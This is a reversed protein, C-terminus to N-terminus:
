LARDGGLLLLICAAAGALAVIDVASIRFRDLTRADGRYGRSTMAQHVEDALM